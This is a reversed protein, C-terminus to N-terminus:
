RDWPDTGSSANSRPKRVVLFGMQSLCENIKELIVADDVMVEEPGGRAFGIAQRLADSIRYVDSILHRKIEISETASSM